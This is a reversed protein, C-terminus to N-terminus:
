SNRDNAIQTALERILRHEVQDDGSFGRTAPDAPALEIQVVPLPVVFSFGSHADYWDALLLNLEDDPVFGADRQMHAYIQDARAVLAALREAAAAPVYARLHPATITAIPEGPRILTRTQAPLAAATALAATAFLITRWRRM